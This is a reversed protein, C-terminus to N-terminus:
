PIDTGMGTDEVWELDRWQHPFMYAQGETNFLDEMGTVALVLHPCSPSARSLGCGWGQLIM